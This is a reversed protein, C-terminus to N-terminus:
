QVRVAHELNARFMWAQGWRMYPTRNTWFRHRQYYFFGEPSQMNRVTWIATRLALEVASPDRRRLACFTLIAQSCSHIDIPYASNHFYKPAGDGRFFRRKYFSYGREVATEYSSDGSFYGYDSLACLNYGTHFHDIWSQRPKAGYAWSGDEHQAAAVFNMCRKALNLYEANKGRYGLRALFSGVLASANYILTRDGPTYSFCVQDKLDVSRNLRTIFFKGVSDAIAQAELDGFTEAADLFATGCFYTAIANPSFALMAPGRLSYFDWDYGWCFFEEGPSRLGVLEAGLRRSERQVEEGGRALDCYASLLLGLAKPNKSPAIGLVRRAREGAFRKGVQLLLINLPLRTAWNGGFYPSNLFDYPEYGSCERVQIWDGLGRRARAVSSLADAVDLRSSSRERDCVEASGVVLM